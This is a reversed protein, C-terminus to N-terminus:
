WGRWEQMYQYLPPPLGQNVCTNWYALGCLAAVFATSFLWLGGMALAGAIHVFGDYSPVAVPGPAAVDSLSITVNRLAAALQPAGAMAELQGTWLPAYTARTAQKDLSWGMCAGMGPVKSVVAAVEQLVGVSVQGAAAATTAATLQYYPLRLADGGAFALTAVPPQAASYAPVGYKVNSVFRLQAKYSGDPCRKGMGPYPFLEYEWPPTKKPLLGGPVVQQRLPVAQGAFRLSASPPQLLPSYDPDGYKAAVSDVFAALQTANIAAASAFSLAEPMDRGDFRVTFVLPQGPLASADARLRVRGARTCDAVAGALTLGAAPYLAARVLGCAFGSCPFVIVPPCYPAGPHYAKPQSEDSSSGFFVAPDDNLCYQANIFHKHFYSHFHQCLPCPVRPCASGTEPPCCAAPRLTSQHHPVRLCAAPM